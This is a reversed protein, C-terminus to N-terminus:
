INGRPWQIDLNNLGLGEDDSEYGEDEATLDIIEQVESDTLTDEADWTNPYHENIWEDDRQRKHELENFLTQMEENEPHAKCYSLAFVLQFQQAVTTGQERRLVNELHINRQREVALTQELQQIRTEQLEITNAMQLGHRHLRTAREELVNSRKRWAEKLDMQKEHDERYFNMMCHELQGVRDGRARKAESDFSQELSRKVQKNEMTTTPPLNLLSLFLPRYTGEM